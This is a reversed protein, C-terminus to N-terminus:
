FRPFISFGHLRLKKDPVLRGGVRVRDGFYGNGRELRQLNAPVRLLEDDDRQAGGLGERYREDGFQIPSHHPMDRKGRRLDEERQRKVSMYRLTDDREVFPEFGITSM